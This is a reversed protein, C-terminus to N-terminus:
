AIPGTATKIQLMPHTAARLPIWSCVAQSSSASTESLMRDISSLLGAYSVHSQRYCELRKAGEIDTDLSISHLAPSIFAPSCVSPLLTSSMIRILTIRLSKRVNWVQFAIRSRPRMDQFGEGSIKLPRHLVTWGYSNPFELLGCVYFTRFDIRGSGGEGWYPWYAVVM